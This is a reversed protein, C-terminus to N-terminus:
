DSYSFSFVGAVPGDVVSCTSSTSSAKAVASASAAAVPDGEAAVSFVPFAPAPGVVLEAAVVEMSSEVALPFGAAASALSAAEGAM